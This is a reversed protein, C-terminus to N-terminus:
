RGSYPDYDKPDYDESERIEARSTNVADADNWAEEIDGALQQLGEKLLGLSTELSGWEEDFEERFGGTWEDLSGVMGVRETLDDDLMGAIRRCTAIAWCATGYPFTVDQLETPFQQQAQSRHYLEDDSPVYHDCDESM